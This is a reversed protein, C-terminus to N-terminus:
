SMVRLIRWWSIKGASGAAGCVPLRERLVPGTRAVDAPVEHRLTRDAPRRRHIVALRSGQVMLWRGPDRFPNQRRLSRERDVSQTQLFDGEDFGGERSQMVLFCWIGRRAISRERVARGSKWPKMPTGAILGFHQDDDRAEVRLLPREAPSAALALELGHLTAGAVPDQSRLTNTCAGSACMAISSTFCFTCGSTAKM